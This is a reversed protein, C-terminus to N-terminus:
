PSRRARGLGGDEAAALEAGAGVQPVVRVLQAGAPHRLRLEVLQLGRAVGDNPWQLSSPVAEVM